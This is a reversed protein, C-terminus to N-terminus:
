NSDGGTNKQKRVLVGVEQWTNLNLDVKFAIAQKDGKRNKDVVFCYYVSEYNLDTFCQEGWEDDAQIIQYKHYTDKSIKKCLLLQDLLHKIAKCAGINNSNLLLPDTFHTDDTLQISGYGYIKLDNIVQKLKTTTLKFAAWDGITSDDNKLTDYFVYKINHILVHKRIEFELTNDDYRLMEKVYIKGEIEAEVWEAVKLVKNYEDSAEKLRNIYDEESETFRGADDM